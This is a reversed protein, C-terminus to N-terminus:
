VVWDHTVECHVSYASVTLDHCLNAQMLLVKPNFFTDVISNTLSLADYIANEPDALLQDKPFRLHEAFEIGREKPGISM